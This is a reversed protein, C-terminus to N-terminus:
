NPRLASSEKTLSESLPDKPGTVKPWGMMATWGTEKSGIVKLMVKLETVTWRDMLAAAKKM